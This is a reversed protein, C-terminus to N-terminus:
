EDKGYYKGRLAKYEKEKKFDGVVLEIVKEFDM